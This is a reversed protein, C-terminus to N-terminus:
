SNDLGTTLHPTPESPANVPNSTTDPDPRGRSSGSCPVTFCSSFTCTLLHTETTILPTFCEARAFYAGTSSDGISSTNYDGSYVRIECRVDERGEDRDRDEAPSSSLCSSKASRGERVTAEASKDERRGDQDKECFRQSRWAQWDPLMDTDRFLILPVVYQFPRQLDTLDRYGMEWIETLPATGFKHEWEDPDTMIEARKRKTAEEFGVKRTVQGDGEGEGDGDGIDVVIEESWPKKDFPLCQENKWRVWSKERDLVYTASDAFLRGNPTTQKLEEICKLQTEQVWQADTLELTFESIHLPKNGAKSAALKATKTHTLLHQLITLLQFLFQRRFHTDAIQLPTLSRLYWWM